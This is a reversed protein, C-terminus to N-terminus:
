PRGAVQAATSRTRTRARRTSRRAADLADGAQAPRPQGAAEWRRHPRVPPAHRPHLHPLTDCWHAFDRRARGVRQPQEPDGVSSSAGASTPAPSTSSGRWTPPPLWGPEEDLIVATGAPGPSRGSDRPRRSSGPSPTPRAARPPPSSTPPRARRHSVSSRDARRAHLAGSPALPPTPRQRYRRRVQGGAVLRITDPSRRRTVADRQAAAGARRLDIRDPPAPPGLTQLITDRSSSRGHTTFGGTPSASRHHDDATPGTDPPTTANPASPRHLAARRPRRAPRSASWSRRATPVVPRAGVFRPSTGPSMPASGPQVVEGCPKPAPAGAVLDAAGSGADPRRM